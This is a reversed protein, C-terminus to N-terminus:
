VEFASVDRTWATVAERGSIKEVPKYNDDFPNYKYWINEELVFYASDVFHYWTGNKTLRKVSVVRVGSSYPKHDFIWEMM